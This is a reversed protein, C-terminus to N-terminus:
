AKEAVCFLRERYKDALKLRSINNSDILNPLDGWAFIEELKFQSNDILDNLSSLRYYRIVTPDPIHKIIRLYNLPKMLWIFWANPTILGLKGGRKLIRYSEAVARQPDRIHGVIHLMLVRDFSEDRFPLNLADGRVATDIRVAKLWAEPYDLGYAECGYETKLYKVVNGTNCGLDLVRDSTRIDMLSLLKKLERQYKDKLSWHHQREYYADDYLRLKEAYNDGIM